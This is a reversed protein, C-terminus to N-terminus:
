EVTLRCLSHAIRGLLEDWDGLKSQRFLRMSPYWLSDSRNL